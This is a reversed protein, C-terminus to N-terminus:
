TFLVKSKRSLVPGIAAAAAAAAVAALAKGSFRSVKELVSFAREIVRVLTVNESSHKTWARDYENNDDVHRLKRGRRMPYTVLTGGFAVLWNTPLTKKTETGKEKKTHESNESLTSVETLVEVSITSINDFAPNM